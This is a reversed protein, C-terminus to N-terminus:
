TIWAEWRTLALKELEVGVAHWRVRLLGDPGHDVRPQDFQEAPNHPAPLVARDALRAEGEIRLAESRRAEHAEQVAVKVVMITLDVSNGHSRADGARELKTVLSAVRASPWSNTSLTQPPPVTGIPGLLHTM